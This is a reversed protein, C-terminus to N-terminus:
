RRCCMSRPCTSAAAHGRRVAIGFATVEANVTSSANISMSGVLSAGQGIQVGSGVYARTEDVGAVPNNVSLKSIAAGVAAAGATVTPTLVTFTQRSVADIDIAGAKTM